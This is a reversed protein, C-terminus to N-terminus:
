EKGAVFFSAWYVPRSRWGPSERMRSQAEQLAKAVELPGFDAKEHALRAYMESLLQGEDDPIPWHSAVVASSGSLLWARTLGFLGLGSHTQGTGSSCGSLTVLGVNQRSAAIEAPTLYEVEGSEQLGLAIMVQDASGPLSLVHGAFHLVAPGRSLQSRIAERTVALGTLLVPHDDLGWARSCKSVEEGTGPLRALETQFRQGGPIRTDAGNYVPDAIGVFDRSARPNAAPEHYFATPVQRLSHVEGLFKGDQGAGAPLAAMPLEFLPGDFSLIWHQRSLVEESLSGFLEATLQRGPAKWDDGPNQLKERFRNIQERLVSDAPLAHSEFKTKTVAWLFSGNRGTHFSLLAETARLKRQLGQLPDGTSVREVIQQSNKELGLGLASEMDALEVRLSAVQNKAEANKDDLSAALARRFKALKEVYEPPLERESVVSNRFLASRSDEAVELMRKALAANGTRGFEAMGAEIYEEFLTQLDSEASVRFSQAPLVVLRLEGASRVAAEFAELAKATQGTGLYARALERHIYVSSITLTRNRSVELARELLHVALKYNGQKRKLWGLYFYSTQLQTPAYIRRLRYAETLAREAEDLRDHTLLAYGLQNWLTAQDSESSRLQSVLLASGYLQIARDFDIDRAVTAAQGLGLPENTARVVPEVRRMAEAAAAMNGMRVYVSARNVGAKWLQDRFGNRESVSLVENYIQLATRYQYTALDCNAIGLLFATRDYLNDKNTLALGKQYLGRSTRYDATTFSKTARDLISQLESPRSHARAPRVKRVSSPMGTCVLALFILIFLGFATKIPPTRRTGSNLLEERIMGSRLM